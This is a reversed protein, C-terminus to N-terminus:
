SRGAFRDEIAAGWKRRFNKWEDRSMDYMMRSLVSITWDDPLIKQGPAISRPRQEALYQKIEGSTKGKLQRQVEQKEARVRLADNDVVPYAHVINGDSDAVKVVAELRKRLADRRSDNYGSGSVVKDILRIREDRENTLTLSNIFSASNELGFRIKELNVPDPKCFDEMMRDNAMNPVIFDKYENYVHWLGKANKAAWIEASAEQQAKELAADYKSMTDGIEPKAAALAPYIGDRGFLRDNVASAGYHRILSRLEDPSSAAAKRIHDPSIEHPMPAPASM